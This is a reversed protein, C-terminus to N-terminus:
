VAGYVEHRASSFGATELVSCRTYVASMNTNIVQCLTIVFYSSILAQEECLAEESDTLEIAIFFKTCVEAPTPWHEIFLRTSNLTCGADRERARERERERKV